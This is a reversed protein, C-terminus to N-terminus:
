IKRRDPYVSCSGPSSGVTKPSLILAVPERLVRLEVQRVSHVQQTAAWRGRCGWHFRTLSAPSGTGGGSRMTRSNSSSCSTKLGRDCGWRAAVSIVDSTGVGFERRVGPEAENPEREEPLKRGVVAGVVDGLLSSINSVRLLASVSLVTGVVKCDSDTELM